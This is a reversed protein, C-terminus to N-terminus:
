AYVEEETAGAVPEDEEGSETLRSVAYENLTLGLRRARERLAINHAQSGTFYQLAAGFSEPAVVRLDVQRGNELLASTKTEGAVLIDRLGPLARFAEMVAAPSTSTALIDLDGVTERMRRTSGAFTVQLTQPLQALEGVIREALPLMEGLLARETGQRYVAIGKLIKEETKAGMGKLDRLEGAQAAAELEDVDGIGREKWVLAVKKPGLGPVRLMDPLGAPVLAKLEEHYGMRGTDLLEAIKGALSKGIGPLSQLGEGERVMALDQALGRLSEAARRYSRIKFPDEDLIELLDATEELARIVEVNDM